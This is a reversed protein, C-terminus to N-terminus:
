NAEGSGMRLLIFFSLCCRFDKVASAKLSGDLEYAAAAADCKMGMNRTSSKIGNDTRPARYLEM